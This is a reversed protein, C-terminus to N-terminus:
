RPTTNATKRIQRYGRFIYYLPPFLFLIRVVEAYGFIPHRAIPVNPDEKVMQAFLHM